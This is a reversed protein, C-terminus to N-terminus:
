KVLFQCTFGSGKGFELAMKQNQSYTLLVVGEAGDELEFETTVLKKYGSEQRWSSHASIKKPDTARCVEHENSKVLSISHGFPFLLNSSESLTLTAQDHGDPAYISIELKCETRDGLYSSEIIKGNLIYTTTDQSEIVQDAISGLKVHTYSMCASKFSEAQTSVGSFILFLVTAAQIMKNM